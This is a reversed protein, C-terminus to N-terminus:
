SRAAGALAVTGDWRYRVAVTRRANGRQITCELPLGEAVDAAAVVYHGVYTAREGRPDAHLATQQTPVATRLRGLDFRVDCDPSGVAVVDVREGARFPGDHLRALAVVALRPSAPGPQNGLDGGNLDAVAHRAVSRTLTRLNSGRLGAIPETAASAYGTPGGTLGSGITERRDTRFLSRQTGGDVLELRLAVEVESQLVWWDRNWRHVDGYLVGDAGCVQAIRAAQAPDRATDADIGAHALATAAHWPEVVEFESQQLWAVVDDHVVRGLRDRMPLERSKELALLEGLPALAEGFFGDAPASVAFPAVVVRYGAARAAALAPDTEHAVTVGTCGALLALVLVVCSRM